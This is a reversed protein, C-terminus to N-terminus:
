EVTGEKMETRIRNIEKLAGENDPDVNLVNEFFTILLDSSRLVEDDISHALSLRRAAEAMRFGEPDELYERYEPTLSYAPNWLSEMNSESLVNRDVKSRYSIGKTGVPWSYVRDGDVDYEVQGNAINGNGEPGVKLYLRGDREELGFRKVLSGGEGVYRGTMKIVLATDEGLEVFRAEAHILEVDKKESYGKEENEKVREPMSEFFKSVDYLLYALTEKRKEADVESSGVPTLVYEKKVTKDDVITFILEMTGYSLDMPCGTLFLLAAVLIYAKFHKM